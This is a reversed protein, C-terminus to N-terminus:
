FSLTRRRDLRLFTHSSWQKLSISGSTQGSIGATQFLIWMPPWTSYIENFYVTSMVVKNLGKDQHQEFQFRCSNVRNRRRQTPLFKRQLNKTWIQVKNTNEIPAGEPFNRSLVVADDWRKGRIDEPRELPPSVPKDEAVVRCHPRVPLWLPRSYPWPYQKRGSLSAHRQIQEGTLKEPLKLHGRLIKAEVLFQIVHMSNTESRSLSFDM